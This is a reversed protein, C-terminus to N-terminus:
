ETREVLQVIVPAASISGRTIQMAGPSCRITSGGEGREITGCGPLLRAVEELSASPPIAKGMLRVEASAIPVEAFVVVNKEVLIRIPGVHLVIAGTQDAPESRVVPGLAKVEALPMGLGIPGILKGPIIDLVSLSKASLTSAV